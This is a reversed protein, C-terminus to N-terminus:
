EPKGCGGMCIETIIKGAEFGGKAEIGADVVTAGFSTKEVKVRYFDPNACLKELLKWALENVSLGNKM